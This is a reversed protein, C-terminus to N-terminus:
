QAAILWGDQSKRFRITRVVGDRVRTGPQGPSTALHYATVTAGGSASDGTVRVNRLPSLRLPEYDRSRSADLVAFTFGLHDAVKSNVIRRMLEDDRPPQPPWLRQALEAPYPADKGNRDYYEKFAAAVKADQDAALRKLDVGHERQYLTCHEDMVAQTEVGFRRQVAAVAPKDCLQCGVFTAYADGRLEPIQCLLERRADKKDLADRYAEFVAEPSPYGKPPQAPPAQAVVARDATHALSVVV